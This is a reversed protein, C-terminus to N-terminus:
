SVCLHINNGTEFVAYLEELKLKGSPFFEVKMSQFLVRSFKLLIMDARLKGWRAGGM